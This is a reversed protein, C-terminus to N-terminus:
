YFKLYSNTVPIFVHSAKSEILDLHKQKLHTYVVWDGNKTASPMTTMYGTQGGWPFHYSGFDPEGWGFSMDHIPFGQGSSVVVAEGDTEQLKFYVRAVAPEPRHLEVWDILGRFHEEKTAKAVFENVEKAIKSLPRTRLYENDLEGYPISLINGFHNKLLSSENEGNGKLFNRGSVIVGMRSKKSVENQGDHAFLKWVFATFSQLKSRRAGDSSADSQLQNISKAPIYFIRSHLQEDSPPPPPLSSIPLYLDDFTTDYFPPRRPNLISPRFSPMNSIQKFKTLEAWSVLFLNLSVGDAIRHDFACAVIVSGCNLETVQVSILGCSINPVLKGKVTEDPHHFDLSKLDVDAQAHIFEVGNNNCRVEPEGQSNRVIEGALPYFISLVRALSKKLTNVVYEPSMDIDGEKKKYCFFVGAALPPLLLDLNSQPLWYENAPGHTARIIDRNKVTVQYHDLPYDVEHKDLELTSM